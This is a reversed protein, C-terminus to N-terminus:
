QWSSSGGDCPVRRHAPEARRRPGGSRLATPARRRYQWGRVCRRARGRWRGIALWGGRGAVVIRRRPPPRARVRRLRRPRHPCPPRPRSTRPSSRTRDPACRASQRAAGRRALFIRTRSPPSRCPTACMSAGSRASRDRPQTATPRSAHHHVPGRHDADTAGRHRRSQHRPDARRAKSPSPRDASTGVLTDGMMVDEGDPPGRSRARADPERRCGEDARVRPRGPAGGRAGPAVVRGRVDDDGDARLGARAQRGIGVSRHHSPGAEAAVGVPRDRDARVPERRGHRRPRARDITAPDVVVPGTVVEITDVLDWDIDDGLRFECGRCFARLAEGPFITPHAVPVGRRRGVSRPRPHGAPRHGRVRAPVRAHHHRASCSRTVSTPSSRGDPGAHAPRPQGAAGRRARGLAHRHRVRHRARRRAEGQARSSSWRTRTPARRTRTTCTCTSTPGTGVAARRAGRLDPRGSRAGVGARHGRRPLAGDGVVDRGASHVAGFGLEVSWTGPEIPGPVYGREASDAQVFM